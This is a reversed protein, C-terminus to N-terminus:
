RPAGWNIPSEPSAPARRVRTITVDGLVRPEDLVDWSWAGAAELIPLPGRRELSGRWREAAGKTTHVSDDGPCRYWRPAPREEEPLALVESIDDFAGEEVGLVEDFIAEEVVPAPAVEVVPAPPASPAPITGVFVGRKKPHPRVDVAGQAELHAQSRGFVQRARPKM